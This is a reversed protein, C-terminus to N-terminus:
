IGLQRKKRKIIKGMESLDWTYVAISIFSNRTVFLHAKDEDLFKVTYMPPAVLRLMKIKEIDEWNSIRQYNSDSIEFQSDNLKVLKLKKNLYLGILGFILPFLFFPFINQFTANEKEVNITIEANTLILAIFVVFFLSGFFIFAYKVFYYQFKDSQHM